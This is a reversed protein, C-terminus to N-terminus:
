SKRRAASPVKRGGFENIAEKIITEMSVGRRRAITQLQKKDEAPIMTRIEVTPARHTGGHKRPRAATLQNLKDRLYRIVTSTGELVDIEDANFQVEEMAQVMMQCQRIQALERESYQRMERLGATLQSSAFKEPNGGYDNRYWDVLRAAPANLPITLTEPRATQRAKADLKRM